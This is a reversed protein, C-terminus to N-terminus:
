YKKITPYENINVYDKCLKKHHLYKNLCRSKTEDRVQHDRMSWSCPVMASKWCWFTKREMFYKNGEKIFRIKLNRM